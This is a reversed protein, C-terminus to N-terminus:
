SILEMFFKVVGYVIIVSTGVTLIYTILSMESDVLGLFDLLDVFLSIIPNPMSDYIFDGIPTTLATVVNEAFCIFQDLWLFLMDWVEGFGM